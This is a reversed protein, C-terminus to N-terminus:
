KLSFVVVGLNTIEKEDYYQAAAFKEEAVYKRYAETFTSFHELASVSRELKTTNDSYLVFIIIDGVEVAQRKADNLRIEVKKSGSEVAKFPAEALHM